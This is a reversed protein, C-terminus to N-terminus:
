LIGILKKVSFFILINSWNDFKVGSIDTKLSLHIKLLLILESFVSTKDGLSRNFLIM